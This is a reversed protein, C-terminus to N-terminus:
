DSDGALQDVDENDTTGTGEGRVKAGSRQKVTSSRQSRRIKRLDEDLDDSDVGNVVTEEASDENVRKGRGVSGSAEGETVNDAPLSPPPLQLQKCITNCKHQEIFTRLGQIGFDGIGSSADEDNSDAMSTHTMPDFLVFRKEGNLFTETGQLDAFLTTSSSQFFAFHTFASLTSGRLDRDMSRFVMTGSYRSTLKSRKDEVIWDTAKDDDIPSGNEDELERGLWADAFTITDDIAIAKQAVAAQFDKYFLKGWTLRALDKFVNENNEELTLTPAHAQVRFFKKLVYEKGSEVERALFVDKMTGKGLPVCQVDLTLCDIYPISEIEGNEQTEIAYLRLKTTKMSRRQVPRAESLSAVASRPNFLSTPAAGFGGMPRVLSQTRSRKSFGPTLHKEHENALAQRLRLHRLIGVSYINVMFGTADDDIVLELFIPETGTTAKHKKWTDANWKKRAAGFFRERRVPSQYFDYFEGLHMSDPDAGFASREFEQNNSFRLDCEDPNLEVKYHKIWMPKIATMAHHKIDPILTDRSFSYSSKGYKASVTKESLIRVEWQVLITQYPDTADFNGRQTRLKERQRDLVETQLMENPKYSGSTPRNLKMRHSMTERRSVIALSHELGIHDRSHERNGTTPTAAPHGHTNLPFNGQYGVPSLTTTSRHIASADNQSSVAANADADLGEEAQIDRALEECRESSCTEMGGVKVLRM